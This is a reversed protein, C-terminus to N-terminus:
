IINKLFTKKKNNQNEKFTNFVKICIKKIEALNKTKELKNEFIRIKTNDYLKIKRLNTDGKFNFLKENEEYFLEYNKQGIIPNVTEIIPQQNKKLKKIKKLFVPKKKLAYVIKKTIEKLSIMKGISKYSPLIIHNDSEKLLAKLCLHAAESHTIFYRKINQPIGFAENNQMRNYINQLLSGNSFSVNAFRVSSVKLNKNKNKLYYLGHEMLKKSCGMLSSPNAAKDTSIFFVQKLTKLKKTDGIKFPKFANTKFMNITSFFNEESRVHKLAAFNIYHSIKKDKIFHSLPFNNIDACIYDVSNIQKKNFILNIDRSLDALSSENNDLLILKKFKFSKLKLTFAKGISGAAGIIFLNANKFNHNIELFQNKKLEFRSKKSFIKNELKKINM